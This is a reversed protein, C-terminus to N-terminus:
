WGSAPLASADTENAAKELTTVPPAAVSAWVQTNRGKATFAEIFRVKFLLRYRFNYHYSM